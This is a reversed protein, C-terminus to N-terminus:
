KFKFTKGNRKSLTRSLHRLRILLEALLKSDSKIEELNKSTSILYEKIINNPNQYNEIIDKIDEIDTIKHIENFIEIYNKTCGLALNISESTILDKEHIYESYSSYKYESLTKVIGAALPNKHIYAICNYLQQQTLIMQVYYRNRFVYGVRSNLKNYLMAFSTNTKSMIQSIEDVNESHILIHAHNDMICYAIIKVNTQALNKKLISKYALKLTNDQFIYTRNIGQVIIHLFSSQLNKRALRAM